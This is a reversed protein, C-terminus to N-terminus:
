MYLTASKEKKNSMTSLRVSLRQLLTLPGPISSKVGLYAGWQTILTLSAIFFMARSLLSATSMVFLFSLLLRTYDLHAAGNGFNILLIFMCYHLAHWVTVNLLLLFFFVLVALWKSSISSEEGLIREAKRSYSIMLEKILSLLQLQM